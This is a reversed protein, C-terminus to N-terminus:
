RSGRATSRPPPSARSSRPQRPTKGAHRDTGFLTHRKAAEYITCMNPTGNATNGDDDDAAIVQTFSTPTSTARRVSEYFLRDTLWNGESTVTPRAQLEQSPRVDLGGYTLGSSHVETKGTPGRSIPPTRIASASRRRITFFGPSMNPDQTISIPCPTAWAKAWVTPKVRHGLRRRRCSTRHLGHGFEHYVVDPLAAPTKAAENTDARSDPSSSSCARATGTPTAPRSQNANVTLANNLWAIQGAPSSALSTSKSSTSAASATLQSDRRRPGHQHGLQRQRGAVVTVSGTAKTGSTATTSRPSRARATRAHGHRRRGGDVDVNGYNDTKGATGGVSINALAAPRDVRPGYLPARQPVKYKLM